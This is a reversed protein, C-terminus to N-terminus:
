SILGEPIAKVFGVASKEISVNETIFRSANQGIAKSLEPNELIWNLRETVKETESFDMAFGTVGEKILDHTAGAYISSICPLGALMAEILVLGWIDFDTQFLFCDSQALFLAVDAKQKFGHFKVFDTMQNDIVYKELRTRDEGDGLIDLIVDSRLKALHNIVKLVRLMNKRPCLHGVYLLHKQGDSPILNERLKRSESRYFQTDVTNIGIAVKDQQAGLSVLYEKARTGYAIFGAARRILVKRQLIRVFSDPRDKRRIAGSWIIYDTKKFWSRLWIKTTAISFANTIIISPNEKSIIRYLGSYTFSSKEPDYYYLNKSPLVEFDFKCQSMDVAWKRRAYGLAGFVVKLGLGKRELQEKLENFLPIRYPTPINTVLLIKNKKESSVVIEQESKSEM